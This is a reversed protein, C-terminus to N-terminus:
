YTQETGGVDVTMAKMQNKAAVSEDPTRQQRELFLSM